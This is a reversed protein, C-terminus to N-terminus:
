DELQMKKLLARYRADSRLGDFLPNTKLGLINPDRDFIARDLNEFARDKEGLATYIYAISVPSIYDSLARRSIEELVKKAEARKGAYALTTAEFSAVFKSNPDAERAKGYCDLAEDFQGTMTYVPGM